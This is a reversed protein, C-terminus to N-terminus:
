GPPGLWTIASWIRFDQGFRDLLIMEAIAYGSQRYRSFEGPEYDLPEDRVKRYIDRNTSSSDAAFTGFDERNVVMPIGSTHNLLRFFPINEWASPADEIYAGLPANLDLQGEHHLKSYTLSALVKTASFLGCSTSSTFAEGGETEGYGNAILIRDDQVVTLALGSVEFTEMLEPIRELTPLADASPQSPPADSQAHVAPCSGLLAVAAAYLIRM